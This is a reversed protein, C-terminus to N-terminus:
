EDFLEEGREEFFGDPWRDLFEGEASIRLRSYVTAASRDRAAFVVTVDDAALRDSLDGDRGTKTQVQGRRIMRLIRLLFLESHTEIIRFPMKRCLLFSKVFIEALRAQMKPHLHLEPQQVCIGRAFLGAQSLTYLIPLVQSIGTGVDGLSVPQGTRTDLLMVESSKWQADGAIRVKLENRIDGKTKKALNIVYNYDLLFRFKGTLVYGTDLCSADNLWYNMREYDGFAELPDADDYALTSVSQGRYFDGSAWRMPISTDWQANFISSKLRDWYQQWFEAESSTHAPPETTEAVPRIASIFDMECGRAILRNTGVTALMLLAFEPQRALEEFAYSHDRAVADVIAAVVSPQRAENDIDVATKFDKFLVCRFKAEISTILPHSRNISFQARGSKIDTSFFCRPGSQDGIQGISVTLKTFTIGDESPMWEYSAYIVSKQVYESVFRLVDDEGCVHDFDVNFYQDFLEPLLSERFYNSGTAITIPYVGYALVVPEGNRRADVNVLSPDILCTDSGADIKSGIQLVDKLVSKGSSNNGYILVFRSLDLEQLARVSKFNRIGLHLM